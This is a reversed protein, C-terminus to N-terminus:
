KQFYFYSKWGNRYKNNLPFLIAGLLSLFTSSSNAQERINKIIRTHNTHSPNAMKATPTALSHGTPMAPLLDERSRGFFGNQAVALSDPRCVFRGAVGGCEEMEPDEKILNPFPWQSSCSSSSATHWGSFSPNSVSVRGESVM